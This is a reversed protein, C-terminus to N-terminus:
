LRRLINNELLRTNKPLSFFIEARKRNSNLIEVREMASVLDYVSGREVIINRSGIEEPIGGSDSGIISLGSAMAEMLTYSFFEEWWKIPGLYRNISPSIFVNAMRYLKPLHTHEIYGFNKIGPGKPKISGKGVMWLQGGSHNKRYIRWANLLVEIGKYRELEGVFLFIKKDNQPQRNPYFRKLNVGHYIVRIKSKDVGLKLLSLRALKSRAIFLATNKLVARTTLSYPPLFYAPHLFSTWVETILPINLSKSVSAAVGSFFHYLEYTEIVDLDKCANLLDSKSPAVWSQHTTQGLVLKVPDIGYIEKLKLDYTKLKSANCFDKVESSAEGTIFVPKFKTFSRAFEAQTVRPMLGRIVGIKKITSTKM